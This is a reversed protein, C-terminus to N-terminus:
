LFLQALILQWIEWLGAAVELRSRLEGLVHLVEDRM